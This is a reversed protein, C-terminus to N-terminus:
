HRVQSVVKVGTLTHGSPPTTNPSNVSIWTEYVSGAAYWGQMKYYTNVAPLGASGGVGPFVTSLRNPHTHDLSPAGNFGGTANNSTPGPEKSAYVGRVMTPQGAPNAMSGLSQSPIYGLSQGRDVSAM